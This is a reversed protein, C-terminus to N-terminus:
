IEVIFFDNSSNDCRGFGYSTEEEARSSTPPTKARQEQKCQQTAYPKPRSGVNLSSLLGTAPHQSRSPKQGIALFNFGWAFADEQARCPVGRRRVHKRSEQQRRGHPGRAVEARRCVCPRHLPQLLPPHPSATVEDEQARCPVGRRPARKRSGQQALPRTEDTELARWTKNHLSSLRCCTFTIDEELKKLSSIKAPIATMRM